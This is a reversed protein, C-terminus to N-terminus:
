PPGSRGPPCSVPRKAGRGPRPETRRGPRRRTPTRRPRCRAPRRGPYTSPTGARPPRSPVADRRAGAPSEPAPPSLGPRSPASRSPRRDRGRTASGAAASAPARTRREGAGCGSRRRRRGPFPRRRPLPGTSPRSRGARRPRDQTDVYARTTLLTGSQEGSCPPFAGATRGEPAGGHVVPCSPADRYTVWSWAPGRLVWRGVTMRGGVNVRVPATMGALCGEDDGGGCGSVTLVGEAGPEPVGARGPGPVAEFGPGGRGDAFRPEPAGGTRGPLPPSVGDGGGAGAGAGAGPGDEGPEGRGTVETPRIGTRSTRGFTRSPRRGAFATTPSDNSTDAVTNRSPCSATAAWTTRVSGSPRGPGNVGIRSRAGPVSRHPAVTVAPRVPCQVYVTSAQLSGTVVQRCWARILIGAPM